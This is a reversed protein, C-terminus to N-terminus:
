AEDSQNKNILYLGNDMIFMVDDNCVNDNLWEIGDDLEDYYFESDSDITDDSPIYGHDICFTLMNIDYEVYMGIDNLNYLQKENTM